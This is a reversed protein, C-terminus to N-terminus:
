RVFRTALGLNLLQQNLNVLTGDVPYWVVALWRGFSDPDKRTELRLPFGTTVTGLQEAVFTRAAVAAARTAPDKSTLEPTDIGHLRLRLTATLHFGVDIVADITDGDVVRLCRGAYVYAPEM